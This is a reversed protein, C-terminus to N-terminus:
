KKSEKSLEDIVDLYDITTKDAAQKIENFLNKSHEDYVGVVYFGAGQAVKIAHLADEYLICESPQLKFYSACNLYIDPHNKDVGVDRVSVVYDFYHLVNLRTLVMKVTETKTASAVALNYGLQKYLILLKEINPKLRVDSLYRKIMRSRWLEHLEKQSIGLDYNKAIYQTVVKASIPVIISCVQDPDLAPYTSLLKIGEEYWINMSDILVGDMDFIVAKQM